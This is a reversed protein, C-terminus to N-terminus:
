SILQAILALLEPDADPGYASVIIGRAGCEGIGVGLVIAEDGPDSEGEFRFTHQVVVAAAGHAGDCAACRLM